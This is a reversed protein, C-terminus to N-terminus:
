MYHTYQPDQQANSLNVTLAGFMLFLLAQVLASKRIMKSDIKFRVM